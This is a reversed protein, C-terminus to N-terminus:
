AMVKAKMRQYEEESIDGRSKLEALRSLEDVPSAKWTTAQGEQGEAAADRVYARFEEENKQARAMERMGMGKGRAILYVLVGLFPLCILFVAWGAKGWGSVEDDRFLDSLVRFLLFFWLIWLFIWMTTFFVNLLPYDM